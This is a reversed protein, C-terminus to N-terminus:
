RWIESRKSSLRLWHLPKVRSCGLDVETIEHLYLARAVLGVFTTPATKIKRSRPGGVIEIVQSSKLTTPGPASSASGFAADNL